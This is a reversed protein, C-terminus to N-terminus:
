VFSTYKYVQHIMNICRLSAKNDEFIVKQRHTDHTEILLQTFFQIYTNIDLFYLIATEQEHFKNPLSFNFPKFCNSVNFILMDVAKHLTMFQRDLKM